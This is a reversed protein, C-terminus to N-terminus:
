RLLIIPYTKSFETGSIILRYVGNPSTNGSDDNGDWEFESNNASNISLNRITLGKDDVIIFRETSTLNINIKIVTKQTIPNPYIEVPNHLNESEVTNVSTGELPIKVTQGAEKVFFVLEAITTSTKTSNYKIFIDKSTQKNLPFSAVNDKYSFNSADSGAIASTLNLDISSNNVLTVHGECMQGMPAYLVVKTPNTQLEYYYGIGELNIKPSIAANTTFDITASKNGTEKPSFKIELNSKSGAQLTLPLTVGVLTFQDANSGSIAATSIILSQDGSNSIIATLVTDKTTEKLVIGFDVKSTSLSLSPGSAVPNVTLKSNSSVISGCDNSVNCVYIGADTKKVTSLVLNASDKGSIVQGDKKWQYKLATGTAKVLFTVNSGETTIQDIPQQTIAPLLNVTLAATQSVVDPVCTGSISVSYNGKDTSKLNKLYLTDNDSNTITSGDKLWSYKLGTGAASVYIFTNGGECATAPKPQLAISPPLDVTLVAANSTKVPQCKGSIECDYNGADAATASGISFTPTNAGQIAIGNKRWSYTINTGGATVTFSATKGSCVQTSTPQSSITPSEEVTLSASNSIVNNCTGTVSCSYSGANGIAVSNITYTPSNTNPIAVNNLKWIYSLGTGAATVNFTASQGTCVTLPQPHVSISASGALSFNANSVANIAQNSADSIKVQYTSGPTLASSINWMWTGASASTSAVLNTPFTSGGDTSLDIQVNTVGTSTWNIATQGGLCYSGGGNPSTLSIQSAGVVTIQQVSMLSWQDGNIGGDHNVAQGAVRLYYTGPTNPATWSFTYTVGGTGNKASTHVLEGGTSRLGAGLNSFTGANTEGTQTTKVGIDVGYYNFGSNSISVTYNSTTGTNVTFTGSQATVSVNTANNQSQHCYCGSNTVGSVGNPNSFMYVSVVVLFVATISLRITLSHWRVSISSTNLKFM